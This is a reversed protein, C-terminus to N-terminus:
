AACGSLFNASVVDWACLSSLLFSVSGISTEFSSRSDELSSRLSIPLESKSSSRTLSCFFSSFFQPISIDAISNRRNQSKETSKFTVDDRQPLSHSSAITQYDYTARHRSRLHRLVYQCGSLCSLISLYEAPSLDSGCM